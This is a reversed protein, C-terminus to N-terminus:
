LYDVLRTFGDRLSVAQGRERAAAFGVAGLATRVQELAAEVLPQLPQDLRHHIEGRLREALGFLEAARTFQHRATALRMSTFLCDVLEPKVWRDSHHGALSERLFQEAEDLAGQHLRILAAIAMTKKAMPPNKIDRCFALSAQLRRWAEDTQGQYLEVLALYPPWEALSM